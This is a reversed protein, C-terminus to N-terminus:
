RIGAVEAHIDLLEAITEVSRRGFGCETAILFDSAYERAVDLRRRTGAVGDTHHVLGISLRTGASLALRNLPQFYAVDNRDRPVPMHIVDVPRSVLTSVRNAMEVMDSMDTPEVAHKHGSDGYCLHLLLDAEAPVTDAMRVIREAFSQYMEGKTEGFRTPEGRELAEFVASAIDWQIALDSPPVVNAIKAVEAAFARELIPEVRNQDKESVFHRIPAVPHPISVQFRCTAPILGESRCKLFANYSSEAVEAYRLGNIIVNDADIGDRLRYHRMKSAAAHHQFITETAEFADNESFVPDLWPLWTLREGVEGDPVRLLAPGLAAGITRFVTTSDALPVSGVLHVNYDVM